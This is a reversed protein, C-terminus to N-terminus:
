NHLKCGPCPNPFDKSDYIDKRPAGTVKLFGVAGKDLRFISHDVITFNGPVIANIDIVSAGGAPIATTQVFRAPPSYLDGERYVRYFISGIIHFSSILNPGANGVYLRIRDGQKAMLPSDTLAGERGNFVVHTPIENMGAQYSFDLLKPNEPDSGPETYFESQMVYFEKDVPPLPDKPEVLLLGYMGNAIHAPVPAAACHYIFLGPSLMRFIGAKTEDVEAYTVSAGGGPGIVGHFDINHGIGNLDINNHRVELVDGVRCRIFPGPVGNNFTWFQYDELPSIKSTVVTSQMDVILRAPYDRTVPPPVNPAFSMFQKSDSIVTMKDVDVVRTHEPMIDRAFKEHFDQPVQFQTTPHPTDEIIPHDPDHVEIQTMKPQKPACDAQRSTMYYGGSVGGIVGILLAGSFFGNFGRTQHQSTTSAFRIHQYNNSVRSFRGVQKVSFRLSSAFSM